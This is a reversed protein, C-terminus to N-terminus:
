LGVMVAVVVQEMAAGNIDLAIVRRDVDDAGRILRWVELLVRRSVQSRVGLRLHRVSHVWILGSVVLIAKNPLRRGDQRKM